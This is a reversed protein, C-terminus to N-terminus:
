VFLDICNSQKIYCFLVILQVLCTQKWALTVVCNYTNLTSTKTTKFINEIRPMMGEYMTRFKTLNDLSSGSRRYAYMDHMSNVQYRYGPEALSQRGELDSHRGRLKIEAVQHRGM